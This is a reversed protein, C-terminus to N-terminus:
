TQEHYFILTITEKECCVEAGGFDSEREAGGFDDEREAGKCVLDTEDFNLFPRRKLLAGFCSLLDTKFM